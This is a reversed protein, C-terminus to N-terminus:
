APLGVPSQMCVQPLQMKQITIHAASNPLNLFSRVIQRIVQSALDALVGEELTGQHLNGFDRCSRGPDEHLAASELLMPWDRM